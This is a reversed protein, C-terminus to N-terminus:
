LEFDEDDVIDKLTLEPDLWEGEWVYTNGKLRYFTHGGFKELSEVEFVKGTYTKTMYDTYTAAYRKQPIEKRSIVRVKDGVNYKKM